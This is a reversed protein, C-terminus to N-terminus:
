RRWNNDYLDKNFYDTLKVNIEKKFLYVGEQLFAGTLELAINNSV